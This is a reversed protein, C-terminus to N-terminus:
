KKQETVTALLKKAAERHATIAEDMSTVAPPGVLDYHGFTDEGRALVALPRHGQQRVNPTVYRIAFGVRKHDSTNPNSGHVIRVHHLSMEGGKLEVDTSDTEAVHVAVEQGRSLLNDQAYTDSHPLYENQHSGAVVRMCGNATHSDTLAIWATVVSDNDLGWYMGDQHWSIYGSDHAPKPFISTAWAIINPGLISEVADLVRPHTALEYAWPFNLHTQNLEVPRPRGGLRRELDEVARLFLDTEDTSLVTLPFVIGRSEYDHLQRSSLSGFTM